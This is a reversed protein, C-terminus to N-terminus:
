SIYTYPKYKTVCGAMVVPEFNFTLHYWGDPVLIIDGKHQVCFQPKPIDNHFIYELHGLATRNAFPRDFDTPSYMAWLKKGHLLQNWVATHQHFDFGGMSGAMGFIKYWTTNFASCDYEDAIEKPVFNHYLCFEDDDCFHSCNQFYSCHDSPGWVAFPTDPTEYVYEFIFDKVTM